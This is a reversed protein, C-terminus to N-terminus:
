GLATLLINSDNFWTVKTTFRQFTELNTKLDRFFTKCIQRLRKMLKYLIDLIKVEPSHHGSHRLTWSTTQVFFNCDQNVNQRFRFTFLSDIIFLYNILILSTHTHILQDYM